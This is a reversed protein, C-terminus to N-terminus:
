HRNFFLTGAHLQQTVNNASVVYLTPSLREQACRYDGIWSGLTFHGAARGPFFGVNRKDGGSSSGILTDCLVPRGAKPELSANRQSRKDKVFRKKRTCAAEVIKPAAIACRLIAQIATTSATTM